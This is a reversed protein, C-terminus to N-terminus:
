QPDPDDVNVNVPEADPVCKSKRRPTFLDDAGTLVLPASSGDLSVLSVGRDGAIALTREGHWELAIGDVARELERVDGTAGDAVFAAATATNLACTDSLQAVFALQTRDASWTASDGIILGPSPVTVVRKSSGIKIASALMKDDWDASVRDVAPRALEVRQGDVHMLTQDALLAPYDAHEYTPVGTFSLADKEDLRWTSDSGRVVRVIFAPPVQISYGIAIKLPAPDGPVAIARRTRGTALDITGVGPRTQKGRLRERTIYAIKKHSRVYLAGVVAGGTRTLRYWRKDGSDYAYLDHHATVVLSRALAAVFTKGDEDVRRRWAQGIATALFPQLAPQELSAAAWKAHDGAVAKALPGVIQEASGGTKALAVALLYAADLHDRDAALASRCHQLVKGWDGRAEADRALRFAGQGSRTRYAFAALHPMGLPLPALEAEGADGRLLGADERKAAVKESSPRGCAALLVLLPVLRRM